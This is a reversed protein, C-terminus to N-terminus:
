LYVDCKYKSKLSDYFKLKFNDTGFLKIYGDIDKCKNQYIVRANPIRSIIMNKLKIGAEDNDPAIFVKSVLMMPFLTGDNTYSGLNCLSNLGLYGLLLSDFVGDVVVCYDDKVMRDYGNPVLLFKNRDFVRSSSIIYKPPVEKKDEINKISENEKRIIHSFPNYGTFGVLEGYANRIPIVLHGLWLCKGSNYCGYEYTCCESGFYHIMYDPNPVFFCKKSILYKTFDSIFDEKNKLNSLEFRDEIIVRIYHYQSAYDNEVIDNLGKELYSFM